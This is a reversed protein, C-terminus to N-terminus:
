VSCKLNWMIALERAGTKMNEMFDGETDEAPQDHLMSQAESLFRLDVDGFDVGVLHHPNDGEMDDTYKDDPILIGVACMTNDQGRYMCAGEEDVSPRGQAILHAVMLDFAEQNNM